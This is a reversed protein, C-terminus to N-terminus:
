LAFLERAARSPASQEQGPHREQGVPVSNPLICRGRSRPLCSFRHHCRAQQTPSVFQRVFGRKLLRGLAEPRRKVMERMTRALPVVRRM